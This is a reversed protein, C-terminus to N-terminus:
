QKEINIIEKIFNELYPGVGTAHTGGNLTTFSVIETSAGGALLKNYSDVSNQYPVTIDADGHYMFVPIEPIWDLPTNEIYADILFSYSPQEPDSLYNPNILDAVINTLEANIETGTMSGDVLDPINSAYPENFFLDLSKGEWEYFDFYAQAVYALYFPQHYETQAFFYDQMALIDYGGSSPFSAKLNFFDIDAENEEIYKHTAMTSYGGQSYGALYLESDVNLNLEAALLRSAYINDLTATATPIEVYYPHYYDKSTGFGILDPAVTVMGMSSLGSLLISTGSGIALSTFAEEDSGITGHSFCTTSIENTTIPLFVRGSANVQKGKYTTLYEVDYITVDYQIEDLPLDLGSLSLRGKLEGKSWTFVEEYSVLITQDIDIVIEDSDDSNCSSFFVIAALLLPFVNKNIIMMKM